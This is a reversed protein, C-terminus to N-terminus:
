RECMTTTSIRFFGGGGARLPNTEAGPADDGAWAQLLYRRSYQARWDAPNTAPFTAPLSGPPKPLAVLPTTGNADNINDQQPLIAPFPESAAPCGVPAFANCPAPLATPNDPYRLADYAQENILLSSPDPLRQAGGHTAAYQVSESDMADCAAQGTLPTTGGALTLEPEPMPVNGNLDTGKDPVYVRLVILELQTFPPGAVFNTPEALPSTPRAYLDNRVAEDNKPAPNFLPAGGATGSVTPIANLVNVTYKRDADAGTRDAGSLTPNTSGADPAIQYDALGDVFQGASDYSILSSYRAHPFTGKIKLTSGAPRRVFAVWYTAGADPYAINYDDVGVAGYHWFCTSLRGGTLDGQAASAPAASLATVGAVALLAVITRRVRM